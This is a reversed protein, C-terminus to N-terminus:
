TAQLNRARNSDGFNSVAALFLYLVAVDALSTDASRQFFFNQVRPSPITYVKYLSERLPAPTYIMSAQHGFINTRSGQQEQWCV